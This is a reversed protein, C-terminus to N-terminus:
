WVMLASIEMMPFMALIAVTAWATPEQWIPRITAGNGYLVVVPVPINKCRSFIIKRMAVLIAWRM